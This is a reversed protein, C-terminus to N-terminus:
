RLEWQQINWFVNTEPAGATPGVLPAATAYVIPQFHLSIVALDESFVRVMQTM